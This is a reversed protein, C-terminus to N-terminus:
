DTAASATRLVGRREHRLEAARVGVCEHLERAKAGDGVRAAEDVEAGRRGEEQVRVSETQTASAGARQEKQKEEWKGAYTPFTALQEGVLDAGTTGPQSASSLM